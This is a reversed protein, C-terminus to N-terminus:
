GRYATLETLNITEFEPSAHGEAARHDSQADVIRLVLRERGSVFSHASVRTRGVHKLETECAFSLRTMTMEGQSASEYLPNFFFTGCSNQVSLWLERRDFAVNQCGAARGCFAVANRLNGPAPRGAGAIESAHMPDNLADRIALFNFRCSLRATIEQGYLRV